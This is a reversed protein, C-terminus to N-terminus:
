CLYLFNAHKMGIGKCHKPKFSNGVSSEFIALRGLVDLPKRLLKTLRELDNV